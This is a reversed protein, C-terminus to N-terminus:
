YISFTFPIEVQGDTLLKEPPKEFETEQVFQQCFKAFAENATNEAVAFAAVKGSADLKFTANLNGPSFESLQPTVATAWRKTFTAKVKVVYATFRDNRPEPEPTAAVTPAAQRPKTRRKTKPEAEVKAPADAEPAPTAVIRPKPAPFLSRSENQALAPTAILCALLLARALM